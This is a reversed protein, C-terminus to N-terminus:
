HATQSEQYQQFKNIYQQYKVPDNKHERWRLNITKLSQGKQESSFLRYASNIQPPKKRRVVEKGKEKDYADKLDAAKEILEQMLAIDEPDDSEKFESWRAGMLYMVERPKMTPNETTLSRRIHQCFLIYPSIPGKPNIYRGTKVMKILEKSKNDWSDLIEVSVHNGFHNAATRMFNTVIKRSEKTTVM